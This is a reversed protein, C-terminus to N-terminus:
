KRRIADAYIFDSTDTRIIWSTGGTQWIRFNNAKVWVLVVLHGDCVVNAYVELGDPLEVITM